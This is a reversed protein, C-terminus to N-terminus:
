GRAVRAPLYWIEDIMENSISNEAKAHSKNKDLSTGHQLHM